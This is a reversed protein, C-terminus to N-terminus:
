DQDLEIFFEFPYDGNGNPKKDVTVEAGMVTQGSSIFEDFALKELDAEARSIMSKNPAKRVVGEGEVSGQFRGNTFEETKRLEVRGMRGLAKTVMKLVRKDIIKNEM